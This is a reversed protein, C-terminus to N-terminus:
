TALMRYRERPSRNVLTAIQLTEHVGNSIQRLLETSPEDMRRWGSRGRLVLEIERGAM